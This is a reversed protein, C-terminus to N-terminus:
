EGIAERLKRPLSVVKAKRLPPASRDPASAAGRPRGTLARGIKRRGAPTLGLESRLEAARREARDLERLLPNATKAGRGGIKVAEPDAWWQSRISSAVSEAHAYARLAAASLDPDEGLDVLITAAEKWVSRGVRDLERPANM